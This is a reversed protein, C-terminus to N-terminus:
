AAARRQRAAVHTRCADGFAEFLRRSLTDGQWLAEPHWQVGVAFTASGTVCVAEVVGDPSVAEVSLGEALRDIAQAHLSNVMVEPVEALRHLHGGPTLSVTHVPGSREGPPKTKDSRHDRKGEVTHLFQHLTGGMAVNLEQIGRCIAFVPVGQRLAARLLPLTTSDRAPDHLIDPAAPEAGYHFPEVNSPSGTVLLGDLREAMRELDLREGLAPVIMPVVRSAETLAVLYRQNVAHFPFGNVDRVCASIGVIPAPEPITEVPTM